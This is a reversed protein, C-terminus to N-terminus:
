VYKLITKFAKPDTFFPVNQVTVEVYFYNPPPPAVQEDMVITSSNLTFALFLLVITTFILQIKKM